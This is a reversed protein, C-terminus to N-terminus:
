DAPPPNVADAPLVRMREQAPKCWISQPYDKCLQTYTRMAGTLDDVEHYAEALRFLMEPMADGEAHQEACRQLMDIRKDMAPTALAIELEANDEIQAQPYRELIDQLNGPYTIATPDCSFM